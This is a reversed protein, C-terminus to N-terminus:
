RFSAEVEEYVELTREATQQWSFKAAQTAGKAILSERLARDTLIKNLADALAGADRPSVKIAAQGVVEPLSSSDSSIVPCGCAMAELPPFGFGEYLSPFAFCEAGRYYGALDEVSVDQVFVVQQDLRLRRITGMTEGRFDREPGGAKGLKVLKLNEFGPQGKLKKFASLLTFLNKRPHESGVFLVYPHKLRSAQPSPRFIAHDVGPYVVSIQRDPIGLHHTLDRKTAESVAIIKAAKSIGRYDLSFYFRDRLNPRHIYTSYGKLDLYRIIDHVTIIYPLKLLNGYRGLHQNPLHVIGGLRNLMRVFNWDESIPALAERSFWSINFRERIRTYIDTYVKPVDLNEALKQSYLDVAGSDTTVILTIM